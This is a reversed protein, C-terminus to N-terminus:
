IRWQSRGCKSRQLRCNSPSLIQEEVFAKAFNVGVVIAAAIFAGGVIAGAIITGAVIGGVIIAGVIFAGAIIAGVVFAGYLTVIAGVVIIITGWIAIVGAIIAGAVIIAGAIFAEYRPNGWYSVLLRQFVIRRAIVTSGLYNRRRYNSPRYNSWVYTECSSYILRKTDKWEHTINWQRKSLMIQFTRTICPSTPDFCAPCKTPSIM